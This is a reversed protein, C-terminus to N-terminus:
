HNARYSDGPAPGTPPGPTPAPAATAYVDLQTAIAQQVHDAVQPVGRLRALAASFVLSRAEVAPFVELTAVIAGHMMVGDGDTAGAVIREVLDGIDRGYATMVIRRSAARRPTYGDVRSHMRRNADAKPVGFVV